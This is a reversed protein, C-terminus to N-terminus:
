QNYDAYSKFEAKTGYASNNEIIELCVNLMVGKRNFIGNTTDLSFCDCTFFTEM